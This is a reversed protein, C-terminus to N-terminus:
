PKKVVSAFATTFGICRLAIGTSRLLPRSTQICAGHSSAFAACRGNGSSTRLITIRPASFSSRAAAYVVSGGISGHGSGADM